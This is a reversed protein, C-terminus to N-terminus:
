RTQTSDWGRPRATSYQDDRRGCAGVLVGSKLLEAVGLGTIPTGYDYAYPNRKAPADGDQHQVDLRSQVKGFHTARASRCHGTGCSSSPTTPGPYTAEMTNLYRM